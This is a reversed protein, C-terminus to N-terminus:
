SFNSMLPKPKLNWAIRSTNKRGQPVYIRASIEEWNRQRLPHQFCDTKASFSVPVFFLGHHDPLCGNQMFVGTGGTGPQLALYVGGKHVAEPLAYFGHLPHLTPIHHATRM